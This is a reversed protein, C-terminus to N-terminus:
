SSAPSGSGDPSTAGSPRRDSSGVSPRSRKRRPLSASSRLAPSPTQPVSRAEPARVFRTSERTTSRSARGRAPRRARPSRHGEFGSLRSRRTAVRRRGPLAGDRGRDPRADSRTLCSWADAGVGGIEFSQTLPGNGTQLDVFGPTATFTKGPLEDGLTHDASAVFARLRDISERLVPWMERFFVDLLPALTEPVADEALWEAGFSNAPRPVLAGAEDLGYLKQGYQRANLAGEGNTREVWEAVLPFHTRLFFGPMADRYLHAYLPGLLGFDGLSPRGGLVYDHGGFHVELAELM